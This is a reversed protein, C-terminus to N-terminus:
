FSIDPFFRRLTDRLLCGFLADHMDFTFPTKEAVVERFQEDFRCIRRLEQLSEFCHNNAFNKILPQLRFFGCEQEHVSILELTSSSFIDKRTLTNTLYINELLQTNWCELTRCELPRNKYISCGKQPSFYLCQKKNKLSKFQLFEKKLICIKGTVNDKIKEGIRLCVLASLPIDGSAVLVSDENHLTPRTTLCCTGCRRCAVKLLSHEKM